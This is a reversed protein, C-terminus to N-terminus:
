IYVCLYEKNEATQLLPNDEKCCRIRDGGERETTNKEYSTDAGGCINEMNSKEIALGHQAFEELSKLKKM